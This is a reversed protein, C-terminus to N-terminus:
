SAEEVMPVPKGPSVFLAFSMGVAVLQQGLWANGRRHHIANCAWIM